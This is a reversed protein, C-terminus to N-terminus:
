TRRDTRVNRLVREVADTTQSWDYTRARRQAAEGLERIRDPDALLQRVSSTLDELDDALVGTVGDVISESVGGAGRYAVTPTGQAAAEMVALGWGEKASPLLMLWSKRLLRDRDEAPVHGHLTVRDSLGRRAIEAELPDRWWGEGIVDLRLDPVEDVLGAVVAFAHEIQKHPVLRALVCLRPMPSRGGNGSPRDVGNHVVTIEAESVGLQVLDQLSSRSVTLFPSNRYLRPTVTREVFWGLRGRWGPYIIQWQRLHVHHVLAVVGRRRVLPSAFPLGNIVDVVVDVSRRRQILWLLGRPYVTLRGGRRVILLGDSTSSAPARDHSACFVTVEHGRQVLGQAVREVFVESGGGDPHTTDRWSLFVVHM